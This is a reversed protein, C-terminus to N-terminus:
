TQEKNGSDEQRSLRGSMIEERINIADHLLEKDGKLEEELKLVRLELRKLYGMSDDEWGEPLEKGNVYMELLKRMGEYTLLM